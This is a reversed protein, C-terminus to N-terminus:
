SFYFFFLQLACWNAKEPLWYKWDRSSHSYLLTFIVYGSITQLL